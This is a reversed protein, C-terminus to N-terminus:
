TKIIEDALIYLKDKRNPLTSCVKGMVLVRSGKLTPNFDGPNLVPINRHKIEKQGIGGRYATKLTIWGSPSTDEVTGSFTCSNIVQYPRDSLGIKSSRTEVNYRLEPPAGQLPNGNTDKPISIWNTIKADQVIVYKKTSLVDLFSRDSKKLMGDEYNVNVNLWVIPNDIIKNDGRFVFEFKPLAIKTRISGYSAGAKHFEKHWECTGSLILTNHNM